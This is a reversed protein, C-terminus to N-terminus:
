YVIGLMIKGDYPTDTSSEPVYVKVIDGKQAQVPRVEYGGTVAQLWVADEASFVFEKYIDGTVTYKVKVKVTDGVVDTVLGKV